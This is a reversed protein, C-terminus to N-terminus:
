MNVRGSGAWTVRCTLTLTESKTYLNKAAGGKSSLRFFKEGPSLGAEATRCSCGLPLGVMIQPRFGDVCGGM